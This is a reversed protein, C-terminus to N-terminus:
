ILKPDHAAGGGLGVWGGALGMPALGRLAQVEIGVGSGFKAAAAAPM